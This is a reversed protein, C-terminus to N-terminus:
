ETDIYGEEKLEKLFANTDIERKRLYSDLQYKKDVELLDLNKATFENIQNTINFLEKKIFRYKILIMYYSETKDGKHSRLESDIIKLCKKIKAEKLCLDLISKDEM